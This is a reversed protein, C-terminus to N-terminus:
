APSFQLYLHFKEAKSRAQKNAIVIPVVVYKKAPNPATRTQTNM